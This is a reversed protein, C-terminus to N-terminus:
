SRLTSMQVTKHAVTTGDPQGVTDWPNLSSRVSDVVRRKWLMLSRLTSMRVTKHAVTTSDPQGVTDWPNLSSRVSDVVRRKWLM